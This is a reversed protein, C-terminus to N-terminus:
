DLDDEEKFSEMNFNKPTINNIQHRFSDMFASDSVGRFQSNSLLGILSSKDKNFITKAFKRIVSNILKLKEPDERFFNFTPPFNENICFYDYDPEDQFDYRIRDNISVNNVLEILKSQLEKITIRKNPDDEMMMKILRLEAPKERGYNESFKGERADKYIEKYKEKKPEPFFVQLFIM